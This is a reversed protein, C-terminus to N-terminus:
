IKALYVWYLFQLGPTSSRPDPLVIKNKYTKVLLDSLSQPPPVEGKRFLFVMPAWDYPVFFGRGELPIEPDIEAYIESEISKWKHNKQAAEILFQDLGMLVDVKM